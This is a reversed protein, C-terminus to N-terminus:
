RFVEIKGGAEEATGMGGRRRSTHGFRGNGGIPVSSFRLIDSAMLPTSSVSLQLYLQGIPYQAGTPGPYTGVLRRCRCSEARPWPDLRRHDRRRVPQAPSGMM